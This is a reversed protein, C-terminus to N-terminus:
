KVTIAPSFLTQNIAGLFVAGLATGVRTCRFILGVDISVVLIGFGATFVRIQLNKM